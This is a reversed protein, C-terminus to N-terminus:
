SLSSTPPPALARSIAEVHASTSFIPLICRCRTFQASHRTCKKRFHKTGISVGRLGDTVPYVFQLASLGSTNSPPRTNGVSPMRQYIFHMKPPPQVSITFGASAKAKLDQTAMRLAPVLIARKAIAEVLRATDDFTMPLPLVPSEKHGAGFNRLNITQICEALPVTFGTSTTGVCLVFCEATLRNISSVSHISIKDGKRTLERGCLTEAYTWNLFCLLATSSSHSFFGNYTVCSELDYGDLRFSLGCKEIILMVRHGSVDVGRQFVRQAMYFACTGERFAAARLRGRYGRFIRQIEGAQIQWRRLLKRLAYGKYLNQIAVASSRRLERLMHNAHLRRYLDDAQQQRIDHLLRERRVEARLRFGRYVKQANIAARSCVIANRYQQRMKLISPILMVKQLVPNAQQNEDGQFQPDPQNGAPNVFVLANLLLEATPKTLRLKSRTESFQAFDSPKVNLGVFEHQRQLQTIAAKKSLLRPSKGPTDKPVSPYSKQKRPSNGNNDGWASLGRFFNHTNGANSEKGEEDESEPPKIISLAEDDTLYLANIRCTTRSDMPTIATYHNLKSVMLRVKKGKKSTFVEKLLVNVQRFNFISCFRQYNLLLRGVMDVRHLYGPIAYEQPPQSLAKAYNAEARPFQDRSQCLIALDLFAQADNPRLLLAPQFFHIDCESLVENAIGIEKSRNLFAISTEIDECMAQLLVAYFFVFKASSPFLQLGDEGLTKAGKFDHLGVYRVMFCAFLSDETCSELQCGKCRSSQAHIESERALERVHRNQEFRIALVRQRGKWGRYCRQIKTAVDSRRKYLIAMVIRWLRRGRIYRQFNAIRQNVVRIHHYLQLDRCRNGRYWAQIQTARDNLNKELRALVKRYLLVRRFAFQIRTAASQNRLCHFARWERRAAVGRVIKQIQTAAYIAEHGYQSLSPALTDIKLQLHHQKWARKLSSHYLILVREDLEPLRPAYGRPESDPAKSRKLGPPFRAVQKKARKLTLKKDGAGESPRKCPDSPNQAGELREESNAAPVIPATCAGPGVRQQSRRLRLPADGVLYPLRTAEVDDALRTPRQGRKPTLHRASPAM